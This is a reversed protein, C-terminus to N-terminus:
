FLQTIWLFLSFFSQIYHTSRLRNGYTLIIEVVYTWKSCHYQNCPLCCCGSKGCKAWKSHHITWHQTDEFLRLIPTSEKKRVNHLPANFVKIYKRWCVCSSHLGNSTNKIKKTWMWFKRKNRPLSTLMPRFIMYKAQFTLNLLVFDVVWFYDGQEKSLIPMLDILMLILRAQCVSWGVYWPQLNRGERTVFKEQLRLLNM